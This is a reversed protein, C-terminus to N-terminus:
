DSHYMLSLLLNLRSTFRVPTHTSVGIWANINYIDGRGVMTYPPVVRKGDKSQIFSQLCVDKYLEPITDFLSHQALYVKVAEVQADQGIRSDSHSILDLFLSLPLEIREFRDEADQTAYSAGGRSVEVPVISSGYQRLYEFGKARWTEIASLHRFHGRLIVPQKGFYSEKFAQISLDNEVVAIQSIERRTVYRNRLNVIRCTASHYLKIHSRNLLM